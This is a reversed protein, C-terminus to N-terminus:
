SEKEVENTSQSHTLPDTATFGEQCAGNHFLPSKAIHHGLKKCEAYARDLWLQKENAM